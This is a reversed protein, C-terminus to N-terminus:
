PSSFDIKSYSLATWSHIRVVRFLLSLNQQLSTGQIMELIQTNNLLPLFHATLVATLFVMSRGVINHARKCFEDSISLTWVGNM